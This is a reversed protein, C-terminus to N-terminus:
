VDQHRWLLFGKRERLRNAAEKVRTKEEGRYEDRYIVKIIGASVITKFCHWCPLTNCYLTTGETPIGMRAAQAVVNVEAHVTRVCNHLIISNGVFNHYKDVSLDFVEEEGCYVISEIEDYVVSQRKPHKSHVLSHCETCLSLLNDEADNYPNKDIHHVHAPPNGCIECRDFGIALKYRHARSRAVHPYTYKGKYSHSQNRIIGKNWGGLEFARLRIGAKLLNRRITQRSCGAMAAMAVQTKNNKVYQGYLWDEDEYLYQGNLAILKKPELDVLCKWGDPTLFKHSSTAKVQKGLRTTVLYVKQIGNSWIDSITAPVIIGDDNVARIKIKRALFNWRSHWMDHIQKMTKHKSNYNRGQFKSIETDGTVCHGHDMDHGIDDCHDLYPVSGNYGTAIIRNERVLVAGVHKRNCTARTSVLDCQQMFYSDWSPRPDNTKWSTNM